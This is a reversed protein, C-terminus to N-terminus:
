AILPGKDSPMLMIYEVADVVEFAPLILGEVKTMLAVSSPPIPCLRLPLRLSQRIVCCLRGSVLACAQHKHPFLLFPFLM